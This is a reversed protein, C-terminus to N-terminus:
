PDMPQAYCARSSFWIGFETVCPIKHGEFTCSRQGGGGGPIPEGPTTDGPDDPEHVPMCLVGGGPAEQPETGPPCAAYAAVASPTLAIPWAALLVLIWLARRM